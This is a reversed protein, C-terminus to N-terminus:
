QRLNSRLRGRRAGAASGNQEARGRPPAQAAVSHDPLGAVVVCPQLLLLPRRLYCSLSPEAGPRSQGVTTALARRRHLSFHHCRGTREIKSPTPTHAAVVLSARASCPGTLAGAQLTAHPRGGLVRLCSRTAGSRRSRSHSHPTRRVVRASAGRHAVPPSSKSVDTRRVSACAGRPRSALPPNRAGSADLAAAAAHFGQKRNRLGTKL